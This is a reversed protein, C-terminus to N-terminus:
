SGINLAAGVGGKFGCGTIVAGFCGGTFSAGFCGGKFGCEGGGGVLDAGSHKPGGGCDM